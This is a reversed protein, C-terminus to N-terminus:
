QDREALLRRLEASVIAQHEPTLRAYKAAINAARTAVAERARREDTMKKLGKLCGVLMWDFSIGHRRCYDALEESCTRGVRRARELGWEIALSAERRSRLCRLTPGACEILWNRHGAALREHCQAIGALVDSRQRLLLVVPRFPRM